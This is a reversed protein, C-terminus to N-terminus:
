VMWIDKCLTYIICNMYLSDNSHELRAQMKGFLTSIQSFLHCLKRTTGLFIPQDLSLETEDLYNISTSKINKILTMTRSDVVIRLFTWGNNFFNRSCNKQSNVCMYSVNLSRHLHRPYNVCIHPVNLMYVM